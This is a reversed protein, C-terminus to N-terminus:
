WDSSVSSSSSDSSSSSWSSSSDSSSFSSVASARSDADDFGWSSNSKPTSSITPENHHRTVADVIMMNVLMDTASNDYSRVSQTPSSAYTLKLEEGIKRPATNYTAHQLSKERKELREKRIRKNQEEILEMQLKQNKAKHIKFIYVIVVVLIAVVTLLVATDLM